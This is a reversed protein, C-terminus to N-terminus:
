DNGLNNSNWHQQCYYKTKKRFSAINGCINCRALRICVIFDGNRKRIHTTIKLGARKATYHFIKGVSCAENISGVTIKLEKGRLHRLRNIRTEFPGCVQSFKGSPPKYFGAKICIQHVRQRTLDFHEAIERYSLYPHERAFAIVERNREKIGM